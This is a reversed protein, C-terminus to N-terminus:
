YHKKNLGPVVLLTRAVLPYSSAVLFPPDVGQREEAEIQKNRDGREPAM